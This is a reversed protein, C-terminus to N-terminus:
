VVGSPVRPVGVSALFSAGYSGNFHVAYIFVTWSSPGAMIVVAIM